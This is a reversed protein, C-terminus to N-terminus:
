GLIQHYNIFTQRFKGVSRPCLLDNYGAATWLSQIEPLVNGFMEIENKFFNRNQMHAFEPPYQPEVKVFTNITKAESALSLKYTIAARFVASSFNDGPKSGPTVEFNEVVAQDDNESQRIVKEFFSKDLWQPPTKALAMLIEM